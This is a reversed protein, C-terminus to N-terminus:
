RAIAMSLFIPDQPDSVDVKVWGYFFENMRLGIYRTEGSTQWDSLPPTGGGGPNDHWLRGASRWDTSSNIHEEYEFCEVYYVQTTQGLGVYFSKKVFAMQFGNRATLYCHPFPDPMYGGLLHISDHNLTGLTVTLDYSGDLNLDISDKGQGYLHLSDWTIPIHKEPQWVMYHFSSNYIGANVQIPVPKDNKKKSCSALVVAACSLVM